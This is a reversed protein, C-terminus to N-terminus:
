VNIYICTYLCICYYLVYANTCLSSVSTRLFFVGKMLIHMYVTCTYYNCCCSLEKCMVRAVYIKLKRM